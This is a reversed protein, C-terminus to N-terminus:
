RPFQWEETYQLRDGSQLLRAQRSQPLLWGSLRGGEPNSHEQSRGVVQDKLKCSRVLQILFPSIWTM